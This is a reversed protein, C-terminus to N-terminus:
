KGGFFASTLAKGIMKNSMFSNVFPMLVQMESVAQSILHETATMTALMLDVKETLQNVQAQLSDLTVPTTTSEIPSETM